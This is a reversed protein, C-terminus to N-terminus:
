SATWYSDDGHTWRGCSPAKRSVWARRLYNGRVLDLWSGQEKGNVDNIMQELVDAEAQTAGNLVDHAPRLRDLSAKGEAKRGKLILWRPSEPTFPVLISLTVAPVFQMCTPIIWGRDEVVTDFAKTMGAGWLNGIGTVMMLSGSLLGRAAAPSIEANYAPVVNEVMGVASYALIRGITFQVWEKSSVEVLQAVRDAAM